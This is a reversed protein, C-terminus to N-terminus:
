EHDSRPNKDIWKSLKRDIIGPIEFAKWIGLLMIISWCWADVPTMWQAMDTVFQKLTM